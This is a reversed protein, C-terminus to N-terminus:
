PQNGGSAPDLAAPYPRAARPGDEIRLSHAPLTAILRDQDRGVHCRVCVKGNDTDGISLSPARDPHAPCPYSLSFLRSGAQSTAAAGTSTAPTTAPRGLLNDATSARRKPEATDAIGPLMSRFASQCRSRRSIALASSRGGSKCGRTRAFRHATALAQRPPPAGVPKRAPSLQAVTPAGANFSTTLEHRPAGHRPRAKRQAWTKDGRRRAFASAKSDALHRSTGKRIYGHASATRHSSRGSTARPNFRRCAGRHRCTSCRGREDLAHAREAAVAGLRALRGM